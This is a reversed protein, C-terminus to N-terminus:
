DRRQSRVEELDRRLNRIERQLKRIEDQLEEEAAEDSWRPRTDTWADTDFENCATTIVLSAQEIIEDLDIEFETDDMAIQVRNDRGMHVDLQSENLVALCDSMTSSILDGLGELDVSIEERDGDDDVRVTLLNNDIAIRVEDEGDNIVIDRDGATAATAGALLVLGLLLITWRTTTNRRNM